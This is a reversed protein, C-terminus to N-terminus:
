VQVAAAGRDPNRIRIRMNKGQGSGSGRLNTSGSGPLFTLFHIFLDNNQLTPSTCHLCNWKKQESKLRRFGRDPHRIDAPWGSSIRHIDARRVAPERPQKGQCDATVLGQVRGDSWGPEGAFRGVVLQNQNDNCEGGNKSTYRLQSADQTWFKFSEPRFGTQIRDKEPRKGSGNRFPDPFNDPSPWKKQKPRRFYKVFFFRLSFLM